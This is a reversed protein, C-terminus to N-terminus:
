NERTNGSGLVFVLGKAPGYVNTFHIFLPTDPWLVAVDLIICNGSMVLLHLCLSVSLFPVWGNQLRPPPPPHLGLLNITKTRFCIWLSM